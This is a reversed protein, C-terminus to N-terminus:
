AVFGPAAVLVVLVVVAETVDVCSYVVRVCPATMAEGLVSEAGVGSGASANDM